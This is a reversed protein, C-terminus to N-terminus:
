NAISTCSAAASTGPTFPIEIHIARSAELIARTFAEPGRKALLDDPTPRGQYHSQIYRTLDDKVGHPAKQWWAQIEDSTGVTVKHQLGFRVLSEEIAQEIIRQLSIEGGETPLRGKCNLIIPFFRVKQLASAFGKIHDDKVQAWAAGRRDALLVALTALFHAKGAGYEAQIWYGQGRDSTALSLIEAFYDRISPTFRYHAVAQEGQQIATELSLTTEPRPKLSIVEQLKALTM